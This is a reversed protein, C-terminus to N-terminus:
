ASLRAALLAAEIMACADARRRGAIDFATGHGPSTRVLPVGLTWNVIRRRDFVKLPILAQDHYLSILGDYAGARHLAWASDAPVPGALRGARAAPALIRREEDGFMEEEGGHPNLACLAVRARRVGLRRLALRLLGGAIIIEGKKLRSAVKSLPLHRTVTVTRLPGSMLMMAAEPSGCVRALYGTHDDFPIGAGRWATKAIPATVIGSVLGRRALKVAIEVADFSAKAGERDPRGPRRRASSGGLCPADGARWGAGAFVNRSGVLIPRCIRKVAPARSAALAIEPGIGAPDGM